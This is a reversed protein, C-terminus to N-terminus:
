VVLERDDHVAFDKCNEEIVYLGLQGINSRQTHTPVNRM